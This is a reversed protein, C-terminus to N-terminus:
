VVSKRDGLDFIIPGTQNVGPFVVVGLPISSGYQTFNAISYSVYRNSLYTQAPVSSKTTTSYSTLASNPVNYSVVTVGGLYVIYGNASRINLTLQAIPLNSSRSFSTFFFVPQKTNNLPTIVTPDSLSGFPATGTSPLTVLNSTYWGNTQYLNITGTSDFGNTSYSWTSGKTILATNVAFPTTTPVVAQIEVDMMIGFDTPNDTRHVEIAIVNEGSVFISTAFICSNILDYNSTIMSVAQQTYVPNALNNTCIPNGNVYLYYGDNAMINAIYILGNTIVKDNVNLVYRFYIAVVSPNNTITTFVYPAATVNSLMGIPAKASIWASDNYNLGTWNGPNSTGVFYNWTSSFPLLVRVDPYNSSLPAVTPSGTSQDSPDNCLNTTCCTPDTQQGCYAATFCGYSLVGNQSYTACTGAPCPEPQPDFGQTGVYCQIQAQAQNISVVSILFLLLASDKWNM